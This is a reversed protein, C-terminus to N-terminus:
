IITEDERKETAVTLERLNEIESDTLNAEGKNM